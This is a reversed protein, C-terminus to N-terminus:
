ELATPPQQVDRSNRIMPTVAGQVRERHTRIRHSRELWERVAVAHREVLAASNRSMFWRSAASVIIVDDLLGVVGMRDPILDWPIVGYVIAGVLIIRGLQDAHRDFLVLLYVVAASPMYGYIVRWGGLRWHSWLESDIAAALIAILVLIVGRFLWGKWVQLAFRVRRFIQRVWWRASRVLQRSGVRLNEEIPPSVDAIGAIEAPQYRSPVVQAFSVKLLGGALTFWFLAPLFFLPLQRTRSM